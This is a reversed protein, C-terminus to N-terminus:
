LKGGQYEKLEDCKDCFVFKQGTPSIEYDWRHVCEVKPTAKKPEWEVVDVQPYKSKGDKFVQITKPNSSQFDKFKKRAIDGHFGSSYIMYAIIYKKTLYPGNNGAMIEVKCYKNGAKSVANEFIVFDYVELREIKPGSKKHISDGHSIFLEGCYSCKKASLHNEYTCAKCNKVMDKEKGKGEFTYLCHHCIKDSAKLKEGCDPCPKDERAQNKESTIPEEISFFREFNGAMDLVLCDKKEEFTRLGRGSMQVFLSPSATARMFVVCDIIPADFGTTLVGINVVAKFKGAKIDEFMLAREKDSTAGDVYAVNEPGIKNGLYRSIMQGHAVSCAFFISVRRDSALRHWHSICNKVVEDVESIRSLEKNKFDGTSSSIELSSADIEKISEGEPLVYDSLYGDNILYRMGINYSVKQFFKNKGFINGSARWPTGTLGIVYPCGISTFIKGYNTRDSEFGSAPIMHAEDCIILNFAGCANPNNALSDRSALIVDKQTEKRGQGACFIGTSLEPAIAKIKAENQALLHGQHCLVLIRMGKKAWARKVLEAILVSKGSATPAIILPRKTGKKIEEITKDVAEQQYKRLKMKIGYKIIQM